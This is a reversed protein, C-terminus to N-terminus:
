FFFFDVSQKHSFASTQSIETLVIIETEMWKGSFSMIKNKNIGSSFETPCIYCM